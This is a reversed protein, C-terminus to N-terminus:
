GTVKWELYVWVPTGGIARIFDIGVVVRIVRRGNAAHMTIASSQEQAEVDM